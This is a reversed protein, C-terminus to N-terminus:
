GAAEAQRLAREGAQTIKWTRRIRVVLGDRGLRYLTRYGLPLSLPGYGAATLQRGVETATAGDFEGAKVVRLTAQEIPSM